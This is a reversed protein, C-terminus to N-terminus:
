HDPPVEAGDPVEDMEEDDSEADPGAQQPAREAAVRRAYVVAAEQATDFKQRKTRGNAGRKNEPFLPSHITFHYLGYPQVCKYGMSLRQSLHLQVGDVWEGGISHAGGGDQLAAAGGAQPQPSSVPRIHPIAPRPQGGNPMPPDEGAVHKAYWLAAEVATAFGYINFKAGKDTFSVRFIGSLTQVVHAYGTKNKLSLELEYGDAESVVVSVVVAVPAETKTAPAEVPAEPAEAAPAESTPVAPTAPAAQMTPSETHGLTEVSAVQAAALRPAGLRYVTHSRTCVLAGESLTAASEATLIHFHRLRAGAVEAPQGHDEETSSAAPVPSVAVIRSTMMKQGPLSGDRGYVHGKLSGSKWEWVWARLEPAAVDEAVPQVAASNIPAASTSTTPVDAAPLPTPPGSDAAPDVHSARTPGDL